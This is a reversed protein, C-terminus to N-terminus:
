LKPYIDKIKVSKVPVPQIVATLNNISKAVVKYAVKDNKVLEAKSLSVAFLCVLVTPVLFAYRTLNVNSSRKANMMQIRKKLTSFNFHNTIGASTTASFSVNLLSYQYAKSDIGKQLIKRDTIFEINERVAKKMLWIGPNFWYFIVSIETLLIDLTHWEQIHVQEHQLISKLDAPNLNKPNIYISQWFSFPSIDAKVIRVDHEQIKSPASNKYLKYLSILQILLRVSLLTAGAWFIIEALHWYNPQEVVPKVFNEVPVKWNVMVNQVPINHHQVFSNINILPYVSSFVIAICLYLRNLIYFTLRRLVLYYGLCFIILAINVKLLFLFLAPM